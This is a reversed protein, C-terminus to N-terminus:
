SQGGDYSTFVGLWADGAAAEEPIGPLEGVTEWSDVSRYDNAGALLHLPNLTSVAISPENQRQLYIDGDPDLITGDPNRWTKRSTMNVNRGVVLESDPGPNSKILIGTAILFAVAVLLFFFLRRISM